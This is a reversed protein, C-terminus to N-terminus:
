SIAYRKSHRWVKVSLLTNSLNVLKNCRVIVTSFVHWMFNSMVTKNRLISTLVVFNAKQLWGLTQAIVSWCLLIWMLLIAIIFIVSWSESNQYSTFAFVPIPHSLISCMVELNPCCSFFVLYASVEVKNFCAKEAHFLHSM